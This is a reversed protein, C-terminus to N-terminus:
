RSLTSALPRWLLLVKGAIGMTYHIAHGVAAIIVIDSQGEIRDIFGRELEM